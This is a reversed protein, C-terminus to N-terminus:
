RMVFQDIGIGTPDTTTPVKVVTMLVYYSERTVNEASQYTVLFPMQIQWTYGRGPFIGQLAIVPPGSVVSNVFIKRAVVDSILANISSRYASWGADTYFPAANYIQTNYNVFDFNYSAVAAKSAWRLITGPLYNPEKFASLSLHKNDSSIAEFIPIPRHFVQYLVIIVMILLIFLSVILGYVFSQYYKYFFEKEPIPM